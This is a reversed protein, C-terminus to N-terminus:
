ECFAKSRRHALDFHFHDRHAENAEPGLVTGFVGCAGTHLQRLFQGEATKEAAAREGAGTTPTAKPDPSVDSTGRGLRHLEATKLAARDRETAKAPTALPPAIASIKHDRPPEAAKAVEAKEPEAKGERARAAAVREAERADRRTPGWFRAVDIARGDATVFGAIDIANALAHESLKETHSRSGNRNRCAYGSASRLRAIPVGLSAQATPQLTKDVWAHLAAVMPCNLLAPPNLELRYLTVSFVPGFARLAEFVFAPETSDDPAAM